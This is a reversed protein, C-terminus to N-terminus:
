KANAHARAHACVVQCLLLLSSHATETVKQIEDGSQMRMRIPMTAHAIM